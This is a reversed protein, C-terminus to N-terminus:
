MIPNPINMWLGQFKLRFTLYSGKEGRKFFTIMKAWGMLEKSFTIKYNIKIQIKM